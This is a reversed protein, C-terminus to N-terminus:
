QRDGRADAPEPRFERIVNFAEFSQRVGYHIIMYVIVVASLAVLGLSVPVFTRAALDSGVLTALGFGVLTAAYLVLGLALERRTFGTRYIANVIVHGLFALLVVGFGALIFAAGGAGFGHGFLAAAVLGLSLWIPLVLAHRDLAEAQSLPEV